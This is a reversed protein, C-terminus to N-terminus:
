YPLSISSQAFIYWTSYIIGDLPQNITKVKQLRAISCEPNGIRGGAVSGIGNWKMGNWEMGNWGIGDRSQGPRSCCYMRPILYELMGVVFRDRKKMELRSALEADRRM